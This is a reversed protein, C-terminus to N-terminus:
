KIGKQKARYLTAKSIGTMATVESCTHTEFLQLAHEIQKKTYKKPRGERYDPNQRAIARGEQTREVILDREFEAFSLMVNYILKGATSNDMVGMNLVNITINKDRLEKILESGEAVSRSLRDLKCVILTDGSKLLGRLVDFKPRHNVKGTFADEYIKEAGAEKLKEIQSELSNGDRAQTRTSVRAYGYIM